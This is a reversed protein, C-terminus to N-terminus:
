FHRTLVCRPQGDILGVAAAHGEGPDYFHGQGAASVVLYGPADFKCVAYSAEGIRRAHHTCVMSGGGREFQMGDYSSFSPRKRRDRLDVPSLPACPPGEVGWFANGASRRAQQDQMLLWLGPVSVLAMLGIVLTLRRWREQPTEELPLKVIQLDEFAM